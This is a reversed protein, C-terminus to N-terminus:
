NANVRPKAGPTFLGNNPATSNQSQMASRRGCGDDDDDHGYGQCDDDDDDDNAHRENGEHRRRGNDHDDDDGFWLFDVKTVQSSNTATISKVLPLAQAASATSIIAIASAALLPKILKM